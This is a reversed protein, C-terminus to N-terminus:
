KMNANIESRYLNPSKNYKKKFQKSFYSYDYFGTSLAINSLTLQRNEMMEIAKKLRYDNIYESPSKNLNEVFLRYLYTRDLGVHSALEQITLNYSFHHKIYNKAKKVYQEVSSYERNNLTNQKILRSMILNLYGIAAYGMDSQERCATHMSHLLKIFDNKLEFEFLLESEDLGSNQTIIEADNGSFVVYIYTWPEDSDATYSCITKPSIMFGQGASLEYSEDEVIYTGKGSLIFTLSHHPYIRPPVHHLPDCITIGCEIIALSQGPYRVLNYREGKYAMILRRQNSKNLTYCLNYVSVLLFLLCVVYICLIFLM